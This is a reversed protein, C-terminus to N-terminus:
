RGDRWKVILWLLRWYGRKGSTKQTEQTGAKARRHNNESTPAASKAPASCDVAAHYHDDTVHLYHEDAVRQSNGIWKCVVHGPFHDELETQRTARLNQWLKPWPELGARAIIRLLHTRLNVASDRYRTIVHVTGEPAAHYVKELYPRLEPFIPIVRTAKGAHHETKPSHVTIRQQEWNVDDWTLLLHESPCRLGGFRSLAFLLQWQDDLCADLIKQSDERTVFYFKEANGQVRATLGAFPDADILKKRM